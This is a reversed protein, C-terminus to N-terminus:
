ARLAMLGPPRSCIEDVTANALRTAMVRRASALVALWGPRSHTMMRASQALRDIYGRMLGPLIEEVFGVPHAGDAPVIFLMSNPTARNLALFLPLVEEQSLSRHRWCVFCKTGTAMDELFKRRLFAMRRIENARMTPEDAADPKIFTHYRFNYRRNVVYWEDNPPEGDASLQIADPDTLSSFEEEIAVTLPRLPAAAFRLLGLPNVGLERQLVGLECNEGLSEFGLLLSRIDPIDAEPSVQSAYCRVSATGDISFVKIYQAWLALPRDDDSLECAMPIAANPHRIRIQLPESASRSPIRWALSAEGTFGGTGILSGDVEIGVHQTPLIGERCFPIASMELIGGHPLDIGPLDLVSESGTMWTRDREPTAWGRGQFQGANGASGFMIALRETSKM